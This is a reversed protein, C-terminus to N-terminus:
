TNIMKFNKEKAYAYDEQVAIIKTFLCLFSNLVGLKGITLFLAFIRLKEFWVNSLIPITELLDLSFSGSGARTSM